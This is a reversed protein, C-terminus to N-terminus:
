NAIYAYKFNYRVRRQQLYHGQGQEQDDLANKFKANNGLTYLGEMVQNVQNFFRRRNKAPLLLFLM